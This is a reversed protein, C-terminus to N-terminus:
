WLSFQTIAGNVDEKVHQHQTWSQVQVVASTCPSRHSTPCSKTKEWSASKSMLTWLLLSSTKSLVLICSMKRKDGRHIHSHGKGEGDGREACIFIPKHVSFHPIFPRGSYAELIYTYLALKVAWPILSIRVHSASIAGPRCSVRPSKQIPLQLVFLTGQHLRIALLLGCGEHRQIEGRCDCGM